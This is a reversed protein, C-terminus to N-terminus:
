PGGSPTLTAILREFHRRLVPGSGPDEMVDAPDPVVETVEYVDEALDRYGPSYVDSAAIVARM